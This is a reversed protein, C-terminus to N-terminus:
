FSNKNKDTNKTTTVSAEDLGFARGAQLLALQQLLQEWKM